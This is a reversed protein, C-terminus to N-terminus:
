KIKTKSAKIGVVAEDVPKKVTKVEKTEAKKIM